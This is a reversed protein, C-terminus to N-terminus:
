LHDADFLDLVTKRQSTPDVYCIVNAPKTSDNPLAQEAGSIGVGEAGLNRKEM